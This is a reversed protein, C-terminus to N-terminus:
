DLRLAGFLDAVSLEFGPLVDSVDIRDSDRLVRMASDARFALVSRDEPDVLVAILVGHNVYWVCKRVLATVSQEPSVIEAAIAPPEPPDNTLEGDANRPIGDWRYVALDPVYSATGITVRLEPFVRALKKPEAFGDLLKVLAAQLASHQRKPKVKQTLTGDPELELAPEAEPLAAFEDLTMRRETIAM